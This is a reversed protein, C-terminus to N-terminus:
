AKNYVLFLLLSSILGVLGPVLGFSTITICFLLLMWFPVLTLCVAFRFTSEFEEEKIKPKLVKKWVLIPLCLIAYVMPKLVTKFVATKLPQSSCDKFNNAICQNVAEPNTFDINRETLKQLVIDYNEEPIQTTLKSMADFVDAKIQKTAETVSLQNYNSSMIPQGFVLAVRSGMQKPAQYNFGIPILSVTTDPYKERLELVIRTFGKSLPRVRRVLSHSGEPFITIAQNNHLLEVSTNFISKNKAITSWGDRVRYVPLMNLSKLIKSVLPKKFVAARTLYYCFRGSKTAVLLADLLANQHNGLFLVPQDEPITEKGILSIKKYYFFLGIQIYLRVSHLWLKKM